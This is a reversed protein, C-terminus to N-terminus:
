RRAPSPGCTLLRSSRRHSTFRAPLSLLSAGTFDLQGVLDHMKSTLGRRAMLHSLAHLCYIVKPLNKADYLDVTEFRFIQSHSRPSLTLL